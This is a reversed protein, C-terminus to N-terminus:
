GSDGHDPKRRAIKAREDLRIMLEADAQRAAELATVRAALAIHDKALHDIQTTHVAAGADPTITERQATPAGGSGSRAIAAGALLTVLGIGGQIAYPVWEAM